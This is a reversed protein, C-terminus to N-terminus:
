KASWRNCGFDSKPSYYPIESDIMILITPNECSFLQWGKRKKYWECNECTRSEFDDYIKDIKHMIRKPKGYADRDFRFLDKAQERNM